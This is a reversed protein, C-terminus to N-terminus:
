SLIEEGDLWIHSDGANVYYEVKHDTNQEILDKCCIFHAHIISNTIDNWNGSEELEEEACQTLVSTDAFGAMEYCLYASEVADEIAQEYIGLSTLTSM